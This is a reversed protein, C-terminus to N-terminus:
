NGKQSLRGDIWGRKWSESYSQNQYPCAEFSINSYGAKYGENYIKISQEKYQLDSTHIGYLFLCTFGVALIVATPYLISNKM